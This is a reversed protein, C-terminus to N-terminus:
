VLIRLSERAYEVKLFRLLGAWYSPGKSGITFVCHLCPGKWFSGQLGGSLVSDVGCVLGAGLAEAFSGM